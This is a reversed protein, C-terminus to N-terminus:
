DMILISLYIDLFLGKLARLSRKIDDLPIALLKQEEETLALLNRQEEERRKRNEEEEEKLRQKRKEEEAERQLRLREEKKEKELDGKRRYKNEPVASDTLKRKKSIESQILDSFSAM